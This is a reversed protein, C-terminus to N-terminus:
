KLTVALGIGLAKPYVVPQVNLSIDRSIDFNKLHAGTIAELVQLTYGVGTFLVTLNLFKNYDNQLQQLQDQTYINVYKDTPYPNNIRGIYAKRFAQYNNLNDVFYYGAVALGAYIVPIKWYQRNYFQGVGPLIASYLGARKPNPQFPLRKIILDNNSNSAITDAPASDASQCKAAIPTLVLASSFVLTYLLLILSSKM